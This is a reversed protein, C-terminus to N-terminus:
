CLRPNQSYGYLRGIAENLHRVNGEAAALTEATSARFAFRALRDL